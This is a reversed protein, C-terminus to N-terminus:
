VMELSNGGLWELYANMAAATRDSLDIFIRRGDNNDARRVFLGEDTMSKIWRLATTAPVAAAICLSSVSVRKHELRAAMLDLLMDWAPDAFLESRFFQDRARRARILNRVRAGAASAVDATMPPPPTFEALDLRAIRPANEALNALTRAIRGVEESLQVLQSGTAGGSVDNLRFPRQVCALALAAVIDGPAPDSLVTIEGQGIQAYVADILAHPVVVIAHCINEATMIDLQGMLRCLWSESAIEGAHVLVADVSVTQALRELLGSLPISALVRADISAAALDLAARGEESDSAVLVSPAARYRLESNMEMETSVM